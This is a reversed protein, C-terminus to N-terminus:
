CNCVNESGIKQKKPRSRKIWIPGYSKCDILLSKAQLKVQETAGWEMQWSLWSDGKSNRFVGGNDENLARVKGQDTKFVVKM